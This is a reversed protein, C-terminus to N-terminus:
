LKIQLIYSLIKSWGRMRKNNKNLDHSNRDHKHCSGFFMSSSSPVSLVNLSPVEEWNREGHTKKQGGKQPKM